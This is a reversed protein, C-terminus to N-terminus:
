TCTQLLFFIKGCPFFLTSKFVEDNESSDEQLVCRANMYLSATGRARHCSSPVVVCAPMEEQKGYVFSLVYVCRSAIKDHFCPWRLTEKKIEELAFSVEM